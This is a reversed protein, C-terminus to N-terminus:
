GLLQIAESSRLVTIEGIETGAPFRALVTEGHMLTVAGDSAHSIMVDDPEDTVVILGDEGASYDLIEAANEIWDGMIFQDAETGGSAVDHSGIVLRDAGAGGNIYDRAADEGGHLLDAGAGGMLTDAGAEGMLTDDGDNGHLADDDAGGLVV